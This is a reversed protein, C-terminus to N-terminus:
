MREWVCERVNEKETVCENRGLHVSSETGERKREGRGAEARGIEWVCGVCGQGKGEVVVRERHSESGESTHKSKQETM